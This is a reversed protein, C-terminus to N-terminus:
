QLMSGAQDDEVWWHSAAEFAKDLAEHIPGRTEPENAQERYLQSAAILMMMMADATDRNREICMERVAEKVAHIDAILREEDDPDM